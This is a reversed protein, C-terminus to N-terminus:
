DHRKLTHDINRLEVALFMASFVVAGGASGCAAAGLACLLCFYGFLTQFFKAM